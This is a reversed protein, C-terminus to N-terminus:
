IEGINSSESEIWVPRTCDMESLAHCVATEFAKQSPQPLEQGGLVSGRHNAAGELDLVQEGNKCIHIYIYIYMYMYMYIYIYTYMFIYVCVFMCVYM